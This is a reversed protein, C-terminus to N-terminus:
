DRSQAAKQRKLEEMVTGVLEKAGTICQSIMQIDM